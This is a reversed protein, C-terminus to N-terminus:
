TCCLMGLIIMFMSWGNAYGHTYLYIGGFLVAAGGIANAMKNWNM